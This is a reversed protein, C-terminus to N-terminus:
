KKITSPLANAKHMFDYVLNWYEKYDKEIEGYTRTSKMLPDKRLSGPMEGPQLPKRREECYIIKGNNLYIMTEAVRLDPPTKYMYRYRVFILEGDHVFFTPWSIEDPLKWEISIRASRGDKPLWYVITDKPNHIPFALKQPDGVARISPEMNNIITDIEAKRISDFEIAGNKIVNDSPNKSSTCAYLLIAGILFLSINKCNFYLNNFNMSNLNFKLAFTNITKKM